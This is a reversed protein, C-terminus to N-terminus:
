AVTDYRTDLPSPLESSEVRLPDSNRDDGSPNRSQKLGHNLKTPRSNAEHVRRPMGLLEQKRTGTKKRAAGLYRRRSAANALLDLKLM